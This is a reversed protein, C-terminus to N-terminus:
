VTSSQAATRGIAVGPRTTTLEVWGSSSRGGWAGPYGIRAEPSTPVPHTHPPTLPTPILKRLFCAEGRGRSLTLTLPLDRHFRSSDGEDASRAGEGWPSPLPECRPYGAEGRDPLPGPARLACPTLPAGRHPALSLIRRPASAGGRMPGAPWKEGTPSFCRKLRADGFEGGWKERAFVRSRRLSNEPASDGTPGPDHQRVDPFFPTSHAARKM